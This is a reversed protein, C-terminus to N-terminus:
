WTIYWMKLKTAGNDVEETQYLLEWAVITALVSMPYRDPLICIDTDDVLEVWEKYYKLKEVKIGCKLYPRTNKKKTREYYKKQTQRQKLYRAPSLPKLKSKANHRISQERCKERNKETYERRKKRALEKDNHYFGSSTKNRCDKCTSYQKKTVNNFVIPKEQQCKKCFRTEM